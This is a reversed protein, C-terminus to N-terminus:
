LTSPASVWNMSTIALDRILQDSNPARLLEVLNLEPFETGTNPTIDFSKFQDLSGSYKLPEKHGVLLDPDSYANKSPKATTHDVPKAVVSPTSNPLHWEPTEYSKSVASTTTASPAM